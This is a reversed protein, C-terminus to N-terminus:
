ATLKHIQVARLVATAGAARVGPGDHMMERPSLHERMLQQAYLVRQSALIYNRGGCQACRGYRDCYTKIPLDGQGSCDGCIIQIGLMLMTSRPESLPLQGPSQHRALFYTVALAFISAVTIVLM